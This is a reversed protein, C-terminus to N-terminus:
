KMWEDSRQLAVLQQALRECEARVYGFERYVARESVSIGLTQYRPIQDLYHGCDFGVCWPFAMGRFLLADIFTVGGHVDILSELTIHENVLTLATDEAITKPVRPVSTKGFFPHGEHIEAYGCLHGSDYHRLVAAKLGSATTWVFEDPEDLWPGFGFLKIKESRTLPIAPKRSFHM